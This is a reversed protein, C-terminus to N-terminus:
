RVSITEFLMLCRFSAIVPRVTHGPNARITEV